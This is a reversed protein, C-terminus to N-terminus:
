VTWVRLLKRNPFAFRSNLTKARELNGDPDEVRTQATIKLHAMMLKTLALAFFNLFIFIGYVGQLVFEKSISFIIITNVFYFVSFLLYIYFECILWSNQPLTGVYHFLYFCIIVILILITFSVFIVQLSAALM